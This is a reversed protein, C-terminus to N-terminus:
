SRAELSVHYFSFGNRCSLRFGSIFAQIEPHEPPASGITAKYLMEAALARHSQEDRVAVCAIHREAHFSLFHANFDNIDDNPGLSLWRDILLQLEPHWEACLAPHISHLNCNHAFYHLVVPSLPTPAIGHVLLLASLAGLVALDDLREQPIFRASEIDRITVITCHGDARPAFYLHAQARYTEFLNQLVEREVGSGLSLTSGPHSSGDQSIQFSRNPNLIQTFDQEKCARALITKFAQGLGAVNPGGIVVLRPTPQQDLPSSLRYVGEPLSALGLQRVFASEPRSPQWPSNPQWISAPLSRMVVTSSSRTITSTPPSTAAGIHPTAVRRPPSPMAPVLVTGHPGEMPENDTDVDSEGGSTLEPEQGGPADMPFLSTLLLAYCHHHRRGDKIYTWDTICIIHLVLLMEGGHHEPEITIDANVFNRHLTGFSPSTLADLTTSHPINSPSIRVSNDSMRPRGANRLKWLQLPLAEDGVIHSGSLSVFIFRHDSAEMRTKVEILLQGVTM